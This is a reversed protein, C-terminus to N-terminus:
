LLASFGVWLLLFCNSQVSSLISTKLTSFFWKQTEEGWGACKWVAGAIQKSIARRFAWDNFGWCVSVLDEKSFWPLSAAQFLAVFVM